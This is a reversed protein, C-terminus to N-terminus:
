KKNNMLKLDYKLELAFYYSTGTIYNIAEPQQIKQYTYDFKVEQFNKFGIQYSSNLCILFRELFRKEISLSVGPQFYIGPKAYIYMTGEYPRINYQLDYPEYFYESVGDDWTRRIYNTNIFFSPTIYWKDKYIPLHYSLKTTFNHSAIINDGFFLTFEDLPNVKFWTTPFYRFYNLGISFHPYKRMNFEIGYNSWLIDNEHYYEKGKKIEKDIYSKTNILMAGYSVSQANIQISYLISLGLVFQIIKQIEM